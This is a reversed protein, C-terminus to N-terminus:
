EKKKKKKKKKKEGELLNIRMKGSNHMIFNRNLNGKYLTKFKIRLMM